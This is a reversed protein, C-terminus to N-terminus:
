SIADMCTCAESECFRCGVHRLFCVVARQKEWLSPIWVDRGHSACVMTLAAAAAAPALASPPASSDCDDDEVLAAVDGRVSEVNSPGSDVDATTRLISTDGVPQGDGDNTAGAMAIASRPGVLHVSM